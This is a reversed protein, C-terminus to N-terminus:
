GAVKKFLNRKRVLKAPNGVYIGSPELERFTVAAAGLVSGSGMIVGPGVFAESAVWCNDELSIPKTILPFKDSDVDHTGACLTARQSIICGSGITVLDMNYIIAGPGILSNDGIILNAPFWINASNRVDTLKGIRAGFLRLLFVRWPRFQYPTWSAFCCWCVKWLFRTLKHKTGYNPMGGRYDVVSENLRM